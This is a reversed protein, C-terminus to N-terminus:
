FRKEIADYRRRLADYAADSIKPADQQYYLRDHGGIEAELRAHEAKAEKESLENVVKPATARKM